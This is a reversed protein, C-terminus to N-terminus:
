GVAKANKRSPALRPTQTLRYKGRETITVGNRGEEFLVLDQRRMSFKVNRLRNSLVTEKGCPIRRAAEEPTVEFIHCLREQVAKADHREGDSILRLFEQIITTAKPIPV